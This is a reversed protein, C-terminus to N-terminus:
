TTNDELYHPLRCATLRSDIFAGGGLSINSAAKTCAVRVSVAFKAFLRTNQQAM